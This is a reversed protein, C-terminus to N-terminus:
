RLIDYYDNTIWVVFHNIEKDAILLADEFSEARKMDNAINMAYVQNSSKILFDYTFAILDSKNKGDLYYSLTTTDPRRKM